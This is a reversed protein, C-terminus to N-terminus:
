MTSINGAQSSICATLRGDRYPMLVSEIVQGDHLKYARKKTGDKSVLESAIALSGFHFSEILKSRLVPPINLMDNFNSIGKDYVWERIQKARYKPQNADVVFDKLTSESISYFNDSMFRFNSRVAKGLLRRSILAYTLLSHMTIILIHFSRGFGLVM